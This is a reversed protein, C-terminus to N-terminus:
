HSSAPAELARDAPAPRPRVGLAQGVGSLPSVRPTVGRVVRGLGPPLRVLRRRPVLPLPGVGTRLQVM